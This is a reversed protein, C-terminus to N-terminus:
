LMLCLLLLFLFLHYRVGQKARYPVKLTHQSIGQKSFFDLVSPSLQLSVQHTKIQIKLM